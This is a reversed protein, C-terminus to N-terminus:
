NWSNACFCKKRYHRVCRLVIAFLFHILIFDCLWTLQIHFILSVITEISAAIIEFTYTATGNVVHREFDINWDLDINKIIENEPTSYSSPDVKSLRM